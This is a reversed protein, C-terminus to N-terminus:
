ESKNVNKSCSSCIGRVEVHTNIIKGLGQVSEPLSLEALEDSYFDRTLGCNKCVFHHHHDLNADFRTKERASGLTTIVGLDNLLWLTRYVTDLSLAPLKRRLQRLLTEADPHEDSAALQRFIELRQATVKVGSRRCLGVFDKVREDIKCKDNM